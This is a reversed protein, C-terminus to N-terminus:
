IPLCRIGLISELKWKSTAKTSVGEKLREAMNEYYQALEPTVNILQPVLILAKKWDGKYYLCGVM